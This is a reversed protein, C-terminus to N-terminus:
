MAYLEPIGDMAELLRGPDFRHLCEAWIVDARDVPNNHRFDVEVLYVAIAAFKHSVPRYFSGRVEDWQRWAGKNLRELIQECFEDRVGPPVDHCFVQRLIADIRFSEIPLLGWPDDPGYLYGQDTALLVRLQTASVGLRYNFMNYTCFPWRNRDM